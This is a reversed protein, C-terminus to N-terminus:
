ARLAYGPGASDVTLMHRGFHRPLGDLRKDDPVVQATIKNETM